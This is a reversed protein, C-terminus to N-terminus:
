GRSTRYMCDEFYLLFKRAFLRVCLSTHAVLMTIETCSLLLLCLSALRHCSNKKRYFGIPHPLTVIFLFIFIISQWSSACFHIQITPLVLLYLLPRVHYVHRCVIMCLCVTTVEDIILVPRNSRILVLVLVLMVSESLCAM